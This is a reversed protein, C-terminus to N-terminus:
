MASESKGHLDSFCAGTKASEETGEPFASNMLLLLELVSRFAEERGTEMWTVSGQWSANQRFLVRVGFTARRGLRRELMPQKRADPGPPTFSRKATFSQPLKMQDLLDEMQLLVDMVGDVAAGDNWYPNYLRGSFTGKRSEDVCVLTTRYVNGQVRDPM